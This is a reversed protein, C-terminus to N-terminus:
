ENLDFKIIVRQEKKCDYKKCFERRSMTSAPMRRDKNGSFFSKASVKVLPLLKKQDEFKLKRTDFMHDFISRARRYSLDLNYEIAKKDKPDLSNPNVYKGRYTPSAFGIVDVSKIKKAINPDQFLSKAYIPVFKNLTKQMGGKLNAKGTDFYNQGFALI